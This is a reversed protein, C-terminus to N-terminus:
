TPRPPTTLWETLANERYDDEMGEARDWNYCTAAMFGARFADSKLQLDQEPSPSPHSPSAALAARALTEYRETIDKPRDAADEFWKAHHPEPWDADHIAAAMTQVEAETVERPVMVFEGGDAPPTLAARTNWATIAEAELAPLDSQDHVDQDVLVTAGVADCEACQITITDCDADFPMIVPWLRAEGGCFPCPKLKDSQM